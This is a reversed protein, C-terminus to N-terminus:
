KKAGHPLDVLSTRGPAQPRGRRVSLAFNVGRFVATVKFSLHARNRPKDQENTTPKEERENQETQRHTGAAPGDHAGM